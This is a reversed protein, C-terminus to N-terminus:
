RDWFEVPCLVEKVPHYQQHQNRRARKTRLLRNCDPCRCFNHENRVAEDHKFKKSCFSCYYHTAYDINM